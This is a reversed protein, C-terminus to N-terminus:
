VSVNQYVNMALDIKMQQKIFDSKPDFSPTEPDDILLGYVSEGGPERRLCNVMGLLGNVSENQSYIVLKETNDKMEIKLKEVWSFTEDGSVLHFFKAQKSKTKKRILVINEFGTNHTTIINYDSESYNLPKAPTKERSMVFCGEKLTKMAEALVQLCLNLNVHIKYINSIKKKSM